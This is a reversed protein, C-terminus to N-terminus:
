TGGVEILASRLGAMGRRKSVFRSAGAARARRTVDDGASASFIIVAGDPQMRRLQACVEDGPMDPLRLDVIVIDPILRAAARLAEKGTAVTGVVDVGVMAVLSEAIAERALQHDDVILVTPVTM